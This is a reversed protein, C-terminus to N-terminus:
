RSTLAAAQDAIAEAIESTTMITSGPTALDRTRLGAELVQSVATEIADAAWPLGLSERLCMATSLIQGVPNAVNQGALDRAAGHGTQYVAAGGAAFNASYSLGRSGLLLAATDAVVDGLMNPAVMVDFRAPDAVIQYCANDVELFETAIDAPAGAEARERWLQSLTPLGGPKTVIALRGSRARAAAFAVNLIEDVQGARYVAEQFATAGGDRRGYQGQYLGGTNERVALIDVGALRDPRVISADAVAPLPRVPTFKCFLNLRSRLEYVFRGGMPGCLVPLGADFSETFFDVVDEDVQPGYENRSGVMDVADVEFPLGSAACVRAVVHLAADIVEPGVGEGRVARLRVFAPQVRRDPWRPISAAVASVPRSDARLSTAGATMASGGGKTLGDVVAGDQGM